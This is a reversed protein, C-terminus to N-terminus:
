ARITDQPFVKRMFATVNRLYEDKSLRQGGVMHEHILSFVVCKYLRFADEWDGVEEQRVHDLLFVGLPNYFRRLEADNYYKVYGEGILYRCIERRQESLDYLAAANRVYNYLTMSSVGLEKSLRIMSVSAVGETDILALATDLIQKKSKLIKKRAM